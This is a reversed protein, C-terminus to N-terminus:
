VPYLIDPLSFLFDPRGQATERRGATDGYRGSSQVTNRGGKPLIVQVKKIFLNMKCWLM